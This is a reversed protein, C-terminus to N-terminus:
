KRYKKNSELIKSLSKKLNKVQNGSNLQYTGTLIFQTQATKSLHIRHRFVRCQKTSRKYITVSSWGGCDLTKSKCPVKQKLPLSLYTMPDRGTHIRGIKEIDIECLYYKECSCCFAMVKM